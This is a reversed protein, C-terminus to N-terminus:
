HLASKLRRHCSLAARTLRPARLIGQLTLWDAPTFDAKELWHRDRALLLERRMTQYFERASVSDLRQLNWFYNRFKAFAMFHGISALLDRESLFREIDAYETVVCNVKGSSHISSNSNDVRYHLFAEDTLVICQAAALTKFNFGLDQYSAGPTPLFTIHNDELFKRRYIASWIAPAQYLIYHSQRPCIVRDIEDPNIVFQKQDSKSSTHYYNGRVIDAHHKKALDYLTELAKPDLYDDPELIAIYEGKAKKLGENMSDGYGTNPKDILIIRPDSKQHKKIIRLSDDTSGDNICIIELDKLTQSEASSLAQDLYPEVNYIPILLSLKPSPNSMDKM